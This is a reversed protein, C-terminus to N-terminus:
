QEHHKRLHVKVGAPVHDSTNRLHKQREAIRECGPCSSVASLYATRSGGQAPDWEDPRTGCGTCTQQERIHQWLALDRDRKPWTLFASHPIRYYRAM